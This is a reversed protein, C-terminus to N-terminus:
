GAGTQKETRKKPAFVAGCKPCKMTDFDIRMIENPPISYGCETYDTNLSARIKELNIKGRPTM